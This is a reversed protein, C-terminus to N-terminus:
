EAVVTLNFTWEGKEGGEWPQSYELSAETTGKKLAKFTWTEKGAAGPIDKGAPVFEHDTQRLMTQDSIQALESWQFGTTPNSCLTVIVSDGADVKAEWTFHQDQMFDDCSIELSVQNSTCASLGLSLAILACILIAKIKM